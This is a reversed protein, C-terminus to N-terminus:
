LNEIPVSEVQDGVPFGFVRSYFYLEAELARQITEAKRFGHQEGEFALYAFPLGKKRLASVMEEAQSPPVVRDELGQLLIVPCSLRDTFHIPSRSRYLEQAEPYPGILGDLYRSEFKHTETALAECDAVGYYSAGAAFDDHFTLACLTTYGGASGGRIALRRGDVEGQEALYRAANVCDLTDVVGWQGKLRERYARGFGTSGGYNVDVVAFGRSTWYQTELDLAPRAMATPGGHSLVLLPPREGSPGTYEANAPPYFLAYATQGGESPFAIPRPASVYRADVDFDISRRLVETRGTAVDLTVVAAAERPSAGICALRTGSSRLYAFDSYPCELPEVESGTPPVIGLREIGDKSYVCAVREDPLFAYTSFGFVWQPKGFEAEMPALPEATDGRMRHLNWWGTRDSVFHLTGGPSWAPQFISEQPGGAVRRANDVSGDTTLDGVWLETGDWPMRPHDWATWALRRGDPSIRPFSYFDQGSVVTRPPATGDTPVVVIENTAERDEGHLERVCVMLRGDPTVRGDAYRAGAPQDPEPTIARPEGNWDQRYLRQDAFNSFYVTSRHVLYSGGGYEHVRTRVNFDSPTLERKAGDPSWRVLVSRGGERPRGELWYVHDGETEVQGLPVAGSAILSATIPSRWSGYPAVTQHVM